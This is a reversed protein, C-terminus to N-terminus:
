WSRGCCPGSCGGPWGARLTPDMAALVPAARSVPTGSMREMVILRQACCARRLRAARGRRGSPDLDAAVAAHNALEVTYDLEEDLSM